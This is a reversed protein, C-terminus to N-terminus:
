TGVEEDVDALIDDFRQLLRIESTRRHKRLNAVPEDIERGTSTLRVIAVRGRENSELLSLFASGIYTATMQAYNGTQIRVLDGPQLETM